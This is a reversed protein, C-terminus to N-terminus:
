SHIHSAPFNQKTLCQGEWQLGKLAGPGHIGTAGLTDKHGEFHGQRMELYQRPPAPGARM